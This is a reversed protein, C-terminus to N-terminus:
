AGAVQRGGARYYNGLASAIAKGTNASTDVSSANITVNVPAGSNGQTSNPAPVITTKAKVDVTKGSYGFIVGLADAVDNVWKFVPELGKQFNEFDKTMQDLVPTIADIVWLLGDTLKDIVKILPPLLVELLKIFIPMFAMILPLFAVALKLVITVIAGLLKMIPAIVPLLTKWLDILMPLMM